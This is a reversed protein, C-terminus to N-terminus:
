DDPIGRLRGITAALRDATLEDKRLAAGARPPLDPVDMSTIIIAVPGPPMQDLLALGDLVPMRLDILATDVQGARLVALAQEGDPAETIEDAMGDILGRLIQRFVPDDDAILVSGARPPGHPLRLDATTGAGPESSLRLRGGLLGALRRAYPLGLGTGGRREGPVQFFEEFVREQQDAPIGIGTDTVLFQV